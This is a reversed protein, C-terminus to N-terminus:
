CKIEVTETKDEGFFICKKVRRENKGQRKELILGKHHWLRLWFKKWDVLGRFFALFFFFFFFFFFAFVDTKDGRPELLLWDFPLLPLSAGGRDCFGRMKDAFQRAAQPGLQCVPNFTVLPPRQHYTGGWPNFMSTLFLHSTLPWSDPVCSILWM